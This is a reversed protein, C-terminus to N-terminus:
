RASLLADWDSPFDDRFDLMGPAMLLSSPCPLPSDVQSGVGSGVVSM